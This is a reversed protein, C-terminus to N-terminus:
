EDKENEMKTIESAVEDNYMVEIAVGYRKNLKAIPESRASLYINANSTTYSMNSKAEVDSVGSSKEVGLSNIGLMNNLESIKNQYERKLEVFNNALHENNITHINENVDFLKTIKIFPSGNYLDEVLKNVTQDNAESMFFTNIKSQMSISFRSLVLEALEDIYHNLIETDNVYNLVKNRLVVFNGSTCDDIFSIEQMKDPILSPPVIFFIDEKKLPVTTFFDSPNESSLVNQVYGLLMINGNKTEGIVAHYNNRLAVEAKLFDVSTVNNKYVILQPLLEKYRGFFIRKFRERHNVVKLKLDENLSQKLGQINM